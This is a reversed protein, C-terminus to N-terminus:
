YWLKNDLIQAFTRRKVMIDEFLEQNNHQNLNKLLDLGIKTWNIYPKLDTMRDGIEDQMDSLGEMYDYAVQMVATLVVPKDLRVGAGAYGAGYVTSTQIEFLVVTAVEHKYLSPYARMLGM